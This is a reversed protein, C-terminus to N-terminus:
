PNSSLFTAINSPRAANAGCLNVQNSRIESSEVPSALPAFELCVRQQPHTPNTHLIYCCSHACRSQATSERVRENNDRLKYDRQRVTFQKWGVWSLPKHKISLHPHHQGLNSWPTNAVSHATSLRGESFSTDPGLRPSMM